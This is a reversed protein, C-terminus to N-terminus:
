KPDGPKLVWFNDIIIKLHHTRMEINTNFIIYVYEQYGSYDRKSLISGLLIQM